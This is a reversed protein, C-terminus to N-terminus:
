ESDIILEFVIIQKKLFIVESFVSVINSFLEIKEVLSGWTAAVSVVAGGTSFTSNAGNLRNSQSIRSKASEATEHLLNEM